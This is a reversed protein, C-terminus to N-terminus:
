PMPSGDRDAPGGAALEWDLEWLRMTGDESGSLAVFGDGTLAIDRVAAQHGDLVHVCSGSGIDWVRVTGDTCGAVVFRGDPSFRAARVIDPEEEFARVLACTGADWVKVPPDFRRRRVACWPWRAGEADAMGPLVV